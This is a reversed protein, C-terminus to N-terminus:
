HGGLEKYKSKVSSVYDQCNNTIVNYKAPVAIQSVANVAIDEDKLSERTTYGFSQWNEGFLQGPGKAGGTASHFGINDKHATSSKASIENHQNDFVLHRHNFKLNGFGKNSDKKNKEGKAGTQGLPRTKIHAMLQIANQKKADARNDVFGHAQKINSKKQGVANAVAQSEQRRVSSTNGKSKEVKTYM